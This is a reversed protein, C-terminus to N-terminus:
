PSNYFAEGSKFPSKSGNLLNIKNISSKENAVPLIIGKEHSTFSGEFLRLMNSRIKIDITKNKPSSFLRLIPNTDSEGLLQYAIFNGNPSIDVIVAGSSFKQEQKTKGDVYYTSYNNINNMTDWMAYYLNKGDSSWDIKSVPMTKESAWIKKKQDVSYIGIEWQPYNYRSTYCIENRNPHWDYWYIDVDEVLLSLNGQLLGNEQNIPLGWLNNTNNAQNTSIFSICNGDPRWKLKNKRQPIKRALTDIAMTNKNLLWIQDENGIAIWKGNPSHHAGWIRDDSEIIKNYIPKVTKIQMSQDKLLRLRDRAEQAIIQQDKYDELVRQYAVIAEQKGMKEWCMGIHLQAKARLGREAAVDGVIKEYLAVAGKLDGEGNEKLLAQQFLLSPSQALIASATIFIILTFIKSETM